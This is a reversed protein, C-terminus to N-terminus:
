PVGVCRFGLCRGRALPARARRYSSRSLIAPSVWSGGRESRKDTPANAIPDCESAEPRSYFEPDYWDRCWQWVNGAMHHLGFPSVGLPVSVSAMPLKGPAYGTRARHLGVIALTSDPETDGWPYLRPRAGRAAYEWQAESPLCSLVPPSLIASKEVQVGRLVEPMTGNSRYFRWDCDNAWLSYANAGLWSVLVMPQQETGPLPQWSERYHIPVFPRRHDWDAVGFWELLINSDSVNTENLFLAYSQTSVPETDILFESINACHVPSQDPETGAGSSGLGVLASPIRICQMGDSQRKQASYGYANPGINTYLNAKRQPKPVSGLQCFLRSVTEVATNRPRKWESRKPIGTGWRLIVLEALSNVNILRGKFFEAAVSDPITIGFEEEISMILEIIDLSDIGLDELLRSEPTVSEIPLACQRSVLLRVLSLVHVFVPAVTDHM